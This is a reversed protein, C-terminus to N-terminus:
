RMMVGRGVGGVEISQRRRCIFCVGAREAGRWRSDVRVVEMAATVRGMRSRPVNFQRAAEERRAASRM